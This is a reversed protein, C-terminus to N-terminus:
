LATLNSLGDLSEIKNGTLYLHRLNPVLHVFSVRNAIDNISLDLVRLYEMKRAPKFNTLENERLYLYEADCQDNKLNLVPGLCKRNLVVGKCQPIRPKVAEKSTQVLAM